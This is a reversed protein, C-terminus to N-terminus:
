RPHKMITLIRYADKEITFYFRYSRSIRAQWVNEAEDYKKARLSPHMFNKSLLSFQKDAAKQLNKPLGNYDRVARESFSLRMM